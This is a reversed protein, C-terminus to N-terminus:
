YGRGFQFHMADPTRWRGGWTWGRDVFMRVLSPPMDFDTQGFRNTSARFDMAAGYAHMSLKSQGKKARFTYAGDFTRLEHWLKAALIAKFLADVEDAIAQNVRVRWIATNLDWGLALPVPLQVMVMRAEWIPSVTGDERIFGSPDGYLAKIEDLGKPARM